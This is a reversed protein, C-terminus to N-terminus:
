LDIDHLAFNTDDMPVENIQIDVLESSDEEPHQFPNLDDGNLSSPPSPRVSGNSGEAFKADISRTWRDVTEQTMTGDRHGGDSPPSNPNSHYIVSGSHIQEPDPFDVYDMTTLLQM